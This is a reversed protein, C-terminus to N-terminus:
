QLCRIDSSSSPRFVPRLVSDKKDSSAYEIAYEKDNKKPFHLYSNDMKEHIDRLIIYPAFIMIYRDLKLQENIERIISDLGQFPENFNYFGCILDKGKIKRNDRHIYQELIEEVYTPLMYLLSNSKLFSLGEELAISPFLCVKSPLNM